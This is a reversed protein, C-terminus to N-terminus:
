PEAADVPTISVMTPTDGLATVVELEGHWGGSQAVEEFLRDELDFAADSSLFLRRMSFGLLSPAPLGALQVMAENARLIRRDEGLLLLGFPARDFHQLLADGVHPISAAATLAPYPRDM